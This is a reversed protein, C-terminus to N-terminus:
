RNFLRGMLSGSGSAAGIALRVVHAPVDRREVGRGPIETVIVISADPASYMAFTGALFPDPRGRYEALMAVIDLADPDTPESASHADDPATGEGTDPTPAAASEPTLSHRVGSQDPSVGGLGTFADPFAAVLAAHHEPVAVDLGLAAARTSVYDGPCMDVLGRLDDPPLALLEHAPLTM